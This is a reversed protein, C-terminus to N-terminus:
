WSLKLSFLSFPDDAEDDTNGIKEAMAFDDEAKKSYSDAIGADKAEEALTKYIEGRLNYAGAYSSNIEISINLDSIAEKYKKFDNYFQARDYYARSRNLFSHRTDNETNNLQIVETFDKIAEEYNGTKQHVFGRSGYTKAFKNNVKIARDFYELAMPYNGMEFFTEGLLYYYGEYQDIAIAKNLIEIVAHYKKLRYYSLAKYGMVETNDPEHELAYDYDDLSENYQKLFFKVIGRIYYARINGEDLRIANNLDNLAKIYEYTFVYLFGRSHYAYSYDPNIDVAKSMDDIAKWYEELRTFALSRYYYARWNEPEREILEGLKQIIQRCETESLDDDVLRTVSLQVCGGALIVFVMFFVLVKVNKM